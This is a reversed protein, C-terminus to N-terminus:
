IENVKTETVQKTLPYVEPEEFNNPENEPETPNTRVVKLAVPGKKGSGVEFEVRDGLNLFRFGAQRIESQHVFLDDGNDQEIFGFGKNPSFWKVTGDRRVGTEYTYNKKTQLVFGLVLAAVSFTALFIATNENILFNNSIQDWLTYILGLIVTSQAAIIALLSKNNM